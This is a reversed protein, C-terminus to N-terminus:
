YCWNVFYFQKKNFNIVLNVFIQLGHTSINEFDFGNQFRQRPWFVKIFDM